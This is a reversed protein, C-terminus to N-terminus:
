CFDIPGPLHMRVWSRGSASGIRHGGHWPTGEGGGGMYPAKNIMLTYQLWVTALLGKRQKQLRKCIKNTQEDDIHISQLM